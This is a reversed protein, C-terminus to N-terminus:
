TYERNLSRFIELLEDKVKLRIGDEKPKACESLLHSLNYRNEIDGPIDHLLGGVYRGDNAYSSLLNRCVAYYNFDSVYKDCLLDPFVHICTGQHNRCEDFEAYFPEDWGEKKDQKIQWKDVVIVNEADVIRVYGQKDVALNDYSIDLWYLSFQMSNDTLRDALKMVQYALKLRVKWPADYYSRMSHGVYEEVVIRGCAGLYQPFPFGQKQSFTQIIIPEPNILLTTMLQLKEAASLDVADIKEIYYHYITEMLRETPCAMMDSQGKLRQMLWKTTPSSVKKVSEAVDCDMPDGGKLCLREDFAQLESTHALRKFVVQRDGYYGPFVNKLSLFHLFPFRFAGSFSMQGQSFSQCLHTGYCAPCKDRETFADNQFPSTLLTYILWGYLLISLVLSLCLLLQTFKPLRGLRRLMIRRYEKFDPIITAGFNSGSKRRRM